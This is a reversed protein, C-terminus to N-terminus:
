NRSKSVFHRLAKQLFRGTDDSMEAHTSDVYTVNAFAPMLPCAVSPPIVRDRLGVLAQLPFPPDQKLFSYRQGYMMITPICARRGVEYAVCAGQSEGVVLSPRFRVLNEVSEEMDAVVEERQVGDDGYNSLYDHWSRIRAGDYCTIPRIRANPFLLRHNALDAPLAHLIKDRFEAGNSSFGHLFLITEMTM